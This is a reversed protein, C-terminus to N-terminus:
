TTQGVLGSTYLSRIPSQGAPVVFSLWVGVAQGSALSAQATPVDQALRSFAQSQPATLRNPVSSVSPMTLDVGFQIRGTPNRVERVSAYELVESSTNQWFFKEYFTRDVGNPLSAAVNYFPRRVELIEHPLKALLVGPSLRIQSTTDVVMVQDLTLTKTAGVYDLVKALSGAGLGGTVRCVLGTYMWDTASAVTGLVVQDGTGGAAAGTFTPTVQEVAVDGLSPGSKLVKMIREWALQTTPVPTKGALTVTESSILGSALRGFIQVNVADLDSSVVQLGDVSSVDYFDIATTIDIPGGAITTNGEPMGLSAYARLQGPLIM